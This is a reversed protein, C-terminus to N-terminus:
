QLVYVNVLQRAANLDGWQWVVKGAPTMEIVQPWSPDGNSNDARDIAVVFNGNPLRV